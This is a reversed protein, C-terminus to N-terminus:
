ASHKRRKNPFDPMEQPELTMQSVLYDVFYSNTLLRDMRSYHKENYLQVSEVVHQLKFTEEKKAQEQLSDIDLQPLVCQM